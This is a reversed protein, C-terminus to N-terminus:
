SGAPQTASGKRRVSQFWARLEKEAPKNRPTYNYDEPGGPTNNWEWWIVGGVEPTDKWTDMFARYCRRQEELGAPTAVQSYYYNWPEISTGEQSCWGVETFLLPKGVKKQWRLIGRKIPAWQTILTELTPNPAPSLKYYSTMGVLDLEDWYEVVKYHDWNASYTLKGPFHKRVERIVKRWRDTYRETSVLESGVSLVEVHNEAALRAFYVIFQTYQEFWDDWSPPNIVGRWETGRPNSLLIIPMLVVRLHNEHAIQFIERWQDKSPSVAPDLKFSESGAHEQYGPNSILVTDAGLERIQPLLLRAEEVANASHHIQWSIGHYPGDPSPLSAPRPSIPVPQAMESATANLDIGGGSGNGGLGQGVWLAAGAVLVLAVALLWGFRKM